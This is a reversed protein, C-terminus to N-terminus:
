LGRGFTLHAVRMGGFAIFFIHLTDEHVEFQVAMSDRNGTSTPVEFRVNMMSEFEDFFAAPITNLRAVVADAIDSEVSM